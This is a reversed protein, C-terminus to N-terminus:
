GQRAPPAGVDARSTGRAAAPRAHESAPRREQDTRADAVADLCAQVFARVAIRRDDARWAVALQAPGLGHVPVCTIGPRAYVVANGEALLAVGMSTSVIEFTEDASVVEAAVRVPRSGREDMALWFDRAPGASEPLAVFAEDAIDTFSVAARAALPHKSSLAVFRRETFLIEYTVEDADIPLWLFAADTERDRLGATSDGWGFSHLEIRWGPQRIAFHDVVGPYLARGVSTLTGVRLQRADHAAADLASVVGEDWTEVVARAAALLAEGASTLRVSRAERRFLPARLATELNRIQKSLAPQSVHLREATRSFNLEEAVAVFYRVDRLHADM